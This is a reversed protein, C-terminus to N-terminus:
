GHAVQAYLAQDQAFVGRIRPWSAVLRERNFPYREESIVNEWTLPMEIWGRQGCLISWDRQLREVVLWANALEPLDPAQPRVHQDLEGPRASLCQDIFQDLTHSPHKDPRRLYVWGSWFRRMPERIVGVLSFGEPVHSLAIHELPSKKENHIVNEPSLPVDLGMLRMLAVKITTCANKAPLCFVIREDRWIVHNPDALPWRPM